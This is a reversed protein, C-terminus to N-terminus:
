KKRMQSIVYSCWVGIMERVRVGCLSCCKEVSERSRVEGLCHVAGPVGTFPIPRDLLHHIFLPPTHGMM